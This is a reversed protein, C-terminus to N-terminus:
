NTRYIYYWTGDLDIGEEKLWAYFPDPDRTDLGNDELWAEAAETVYIGEELKVENEEGDYSSLIHGRGDVAIVDETYREFDIYGRVHSPIDMSDELYSTCYELAEKNAEQDTLVMFEMGGAKYTNGWMGRISEPNYGLFAALAVAREDM